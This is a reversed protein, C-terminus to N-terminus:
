KATFAIGALLRPTFINQFFPREGDVTQLDRYCTRATVLLHVSLWRPSVAALIMLASSGKNLLRKEPPTMSSKNSIVRHPLLRGLEALMLTNTQCVSVTATCYCQEAIGRDAWSGHMKVLGRGSCIPILTGSRQYLQKQDLVAWTICNTLHLRGLVLLALHENAMLVDVTEICPSHPVFSGQIKRSRLVFM